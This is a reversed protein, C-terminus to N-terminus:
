GNQWQRKGIRAGYVLSAMMALVVAGLVMGGSAFFSGMGTFNAWAWLSGDAMLWYHTEISYDAGCYLDVRTDIPSEWKFPPYYRVTNAEGCLSVPETKPEPLADRQEWECSLSNGCGLAYITDSETRIWVEQGFVLYTASDLIEVAQEPPLPVETWSGRPFQLWGLLVAVGLSAIFGLVVMYAWATCSPEQYQPNLYISLPVMMALAYLVVSLVFIIVRDIWSLGDTGLTLIAIFGFLLGLVVGHRIVRM